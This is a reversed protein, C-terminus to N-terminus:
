DQHPIRTLLLETTRRPAETILPFLMARRPLRVHKKNRV